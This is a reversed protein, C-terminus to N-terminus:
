DVVLLLVPLVLLSAPFREGLVPRAIFPIQEAVPTRNRKEEEREELDEPQDVQPSSYVFLTRRTHMCATFHAERQEFGRSRRSPDWFSRGRRFRVSRDRSSMSLQRTGRFIVRFFVALDEEETKM